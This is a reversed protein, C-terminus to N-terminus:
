NRLEFPFSLRIRANPAADVLSPPDLRARRMATLVAEGFGAGQPTEELIQCDVFRGETKDVGCEVRVFGSMIGAREAARPFAPAPPTLMRPQVLPRGNTTINQSTLALLTATVIGLM